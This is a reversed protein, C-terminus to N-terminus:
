HCSFRLHSSFNVCKITRKLVALSNFDVTNQLM